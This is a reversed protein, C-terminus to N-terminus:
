GSIGVLEAGEKEIPPRQKCLHAVSERSGSSPNIQRSAKKGALRLAEVFDVFSELGAFAFKNVEAYVHGAQSWM